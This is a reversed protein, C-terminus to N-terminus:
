CSWWAKYYRIKLERWTDKNGDGGSYLSCKVKDIKEVVADSKEWTHTYVAGETTKEVSYNATDVVTSGHYFIMILNYNYSRESTYSYEFRIEFDTLNNIGAEFTFTRDCCYSSYFFCGNTGLSPSWSSDGSERYMAVQIPSSIGTTVNSIRPTGGGYTVQSAVSQNFTFDKDTAAAKSINFAFTNTGILTGVLALSTGVLATTIIIKKSFM